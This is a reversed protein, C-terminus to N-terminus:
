AGHNFLNCSIYVLKPVKLEKLRQVVDPHMGSRPPDTILCDPKGHKDTIESTFVDKMDGQIFSM